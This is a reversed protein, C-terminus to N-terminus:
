PAEVSTKLEARINYAVVAFSGIIVVISVLDILGFM